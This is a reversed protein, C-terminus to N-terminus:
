CGHEPGLVNYLPDLMAWRFFRYLIDNYAHLQDSTRDPDLDQISSDSRDMDLLYFPGTRPDDRERPEVTTGTLLGHRVVLSGNELTLELDERATRITAEGFLDAAALGFGLLEQRIYPQWDALAIAGPIRFENVYRLGLRTQRTPRLREVLVRLAVSFRSAFEDISSYGRVELTLASEALVLSWREDETSFRWLTTGLVQAQEPSFPAPVQVTRESRPYEDRVAQNFEDIFQPESFRVLVPFRVQALALVIPADRFLVRDVRPLTESV